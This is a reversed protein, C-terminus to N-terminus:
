VVELMGFGQNRRFSLGLQYLLNLDEMDGTLKFVGKYSNVGYYKNGKEFFHDDVKVVVKQMNLPEFNLERKLAEGRFNRLTVNAIYNIEENFRKDDIDLYKGMKDKVCIPSLTKFIVESNNIQKEKLLYIKERKLNFEKYNFEDIGLLGNYFNIFFEIDPSTLILSVNGDIIFCEDKLRFKDLRVAFSYNKSKKNSKENFYFLNNFYEKDVRKLSEKILSIFLMNYSVPLMDTKFSCKLRM